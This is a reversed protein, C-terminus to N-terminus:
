TGDDGATKEITVQQQDLELLYLNENLETVRGGTIKGIKGDNVRMLCYAHDVLGDANLVIEQDTDKRELTLSSFRQVAGAMGSGTLHRISPASTDMWTMYSDLRSKLKEWGLDAGRDVDLLDDPHMFHSSVFHMNLESFATLQMYDDLVCSSIIRPTEIMGDQAVEFEQSYGDSGPLYCSAIARIGPFDQVLMKRGEESLINSPPVYVTMEENPFLGKTFKELEEISKKMEEESAWYHYGLAEQYSFDSLCLPQHNYGHYGLEGGQNLLMNGYYYYDGVSLNSPLKGSTKDAYTEIVLGTFSIHHKKGMSLLDPWWVSSYFQATDMGYDRQIYKSDGQPVPSPFDDLYFSAANIVPYICVDQLLSYASAYIGRYAKECYGFNCVVFRGSGYTDTWILPTNSGPLTAYVRCNESIGVNMSSEYSDEIKYERDGGLMFNGASRFANVDVYDYGLEQIGMKSSIIDVADTKNLPLGVMMRGGQNVWETLKLVNQGMPTIDPIILVATQYGKLDPLEQAAIDVTDYPVRMDTLICDFQKQANASAEQDSDVILLCTKDEPLTKETRVQDAPLIEDQLDESQYPIGAKEVLLLVMIAAFGAFVRIMAGFRMKKM